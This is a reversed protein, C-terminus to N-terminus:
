IARQGSPISLGIVRWRYNAPYSQKVELGALILAFAAFVLRFARGRVQRERQREEIGQDPSM